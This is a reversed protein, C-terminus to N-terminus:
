SILETGVPEVTVRCTEAPGDGGASWDFEVRKLRFRGVIPFLTEFFRIDVICGPV